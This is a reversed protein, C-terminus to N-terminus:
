SWRGVEVQLPHRDALSRLEDQTLHGAGPFGAGIKWSAHLVAQGLADAPHGGALWGHLFSAFLTDGAGVTSQLPRPPATRARVLSGDRVGLVAGDAGCGVAAILCGPYAAFVQAIWEEASCPLREHSCFLIDAAALWPRREEEHVDSILHVDVAIPMDLDTAPEILPRAFSATTLVALDAEASLRGFLEVPYDVANVHRLLSHGARRGDEAVLSVALSSGPGTIAGMGLLGRARLETRVLEGALDAGIITCLEVEDGLRRLAQAVNAGVGTVGVEMWDPFRTPGDTLPFGGTPVSVGLSAVGAVVIKSGRPNM